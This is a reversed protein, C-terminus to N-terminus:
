LDHQDGVGQAITLELVSQGLLKLCKHLYDKILLHGRDINLDTPSLDIDFTLSMISINPILPMLIECVDINQNSIVQSFLISM